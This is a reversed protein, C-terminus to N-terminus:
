LRKQLEGARAVAVYGLRENVSIMADNVEANWTAVTRVQPYTEQLLRLNALKVALGLRHGRHDARVLTGWQFAREPEDITVSIDTYAVVEGDATTAVANVKSRGQRAVLAEQDRVAGADATAVEREIDGTPAETMLTATLRAWGELLEDPVPGVFARVAYATHHPAAEAALEDILAPDVPLSQRRQVEVLGIEFGHRLAWRVDPSQSGDPDDYLWDAQAVLRSRGLARARAEVHDLMVAGHGRRRADPHVCVVVDAVDTNDVTSGDLWGSAVPQGDLSGVWGRRLKRPNADRLQQLLEEPRWPSTLEGVPGHVMAPQYVANYAAFTPEDPAVPVIELGSM